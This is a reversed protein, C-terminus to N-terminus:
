ETLLDEVPVLADFYDSEPIEGALEGAYVLVTRLSITKPLKLRRAKEQVEAIVSGTLHKRRKIEVLYVASKTRILLDIQCGQRRQTKTQTYPGANLITLQDLGLTQYLKPLTNLITNEFQFGMITPWAELSELSKNRYLGKRIRERQPEVYKLYFRLYNDSLRFRISRAYSKGTEPNFSTDKSIFGAQELEELAAALSGGRKRELAKSVQQVTKPGEVLTAVINRYSEARKLFIDHFIREFEHFLMGGAHFCLRTIEEEASRKPNIERLYGPVGGTVAILDLKENLSLAEGKKEFFRLSEHLPLPQLHFHWSCRGVFGTNRLINQEIWSSVSGCLILVLDKRHSYLDDWANKLHGPFNKDGQAMWSIEDFLLVLKGRPPLFKELNTFAEPWSKPHTEPFGTQKATEQAFNKLQDAKSIDGHPALGSISIFHAAKQSCERIFRSKGIRRRGQCTALKAARTELLKQFDDRDDRRGIYSEHLM